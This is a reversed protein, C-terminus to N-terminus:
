VWVIVGNSFIWAMTLCAQARAPISTSSFGTTSETHKLESGPLGSGAACKEASRWTSPLNWLCGSGCAKMRSNQEQSTACFAFWHVPELMTRHRFSAYSWSQRMASCSISGTVRAAKNMRIFSRTTLWTATMGMTVRAPVKAM